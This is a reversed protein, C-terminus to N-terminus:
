GRREGPPSHLPAPTLLPPLSSRPLVNAAGRARVVLKQLIGNTTTLVKLVCFVLVLLWKSPATGKSAASFQQSASRCLGVATQALNM